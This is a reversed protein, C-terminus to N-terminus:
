PCQYQLEPYYGTLGLSYWETYSLARQVQAEANTLISKSPYQLVQQALPAMIVTRSM